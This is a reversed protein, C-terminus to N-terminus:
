SQKHEPHQCNDQSKQQCVNSVRICRSFVLLNFVSNDSSRIPSMNEKRSTLNDVAWVTGQLLLKNMRLIFEMWASYAMGLLASFNSGTPDFTLM